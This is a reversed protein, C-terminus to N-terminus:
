GRPVARIGAQIVPLAALSGALRVPGGGERSMLDVAGTVGEYDRGYDHFVMRAGPAALAGAVRGIRLTAEYSHDADIFVLGFAYPRLWPAVELFDGVVTVINRYHARNEMFEPLTWVPGAGQHEASGSFTDVTVVMAATSALAVTSRGKWAGVELVVRNAALEALCAAEEVTLWGEPLTDPLPLAAAGM